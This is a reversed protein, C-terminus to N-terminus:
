RLLRSGNWGNGPWPSCEGSGNVFDGIFRDGNNPPTPNINGDVNVAVAVISAVRAFFRKTFDRGADSCPRIHGYDDM